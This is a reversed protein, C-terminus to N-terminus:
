RSYLDSSWVNLSVNQMYPKHGVMNLAMMNGHGGPQQPRYQPRKMQQAMEENSNVMYGQIVTTIFPRTKPVCYKM